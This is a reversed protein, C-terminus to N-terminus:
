CVGKTHGAEKWLAYDKCLGMPHVDEWKKWCFKKVGDKHEQRTWTKSHICDYCRGYPKKEKDQEDVWRPYFADCQIIKVRKPNNPCFTQGTLGTKGCDHCIHRCIHDFDEITLVTTM